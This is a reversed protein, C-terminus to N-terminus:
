YRFYSSGFLLSFSLQFKTRFPTHALARSVTSRSKQGSPVAAPLAMLLLWSARFCAPLRSMRPCFMKYQLSDHWFFLVLGEKLLAPGTFAIDSWVSPISAGLLVWYSQPSALEPYEAGFADLRTAIQIKEMDSFFANVFQEDERLTSEIASSQQLGM